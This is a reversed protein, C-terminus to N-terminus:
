LGRMLEVAEDANVRKENMIEKVTEAEHKDIDYIAMLDRIHEDDMDEEEVLEHDDHSATDKDDSMYARNSLIYQSSGLM